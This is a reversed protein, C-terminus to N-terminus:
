CFLTGPIDGLPLPPRYTPGVVKRGENASQRYIRHAEFEQHGLLRVPKYHSQLFFNVIRFHLWVAGARGELLPPNSTAYFTSFIFHRLTAQKVVFIVDTQRDTSHACLQDLNRIYSVSSLCVKEM